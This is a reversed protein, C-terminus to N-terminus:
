GRSPEYDHSTVLELAIRNIYSRIEERCAAQSDESRAGDNVRNTQMKMCEAM